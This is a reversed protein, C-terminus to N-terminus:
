AEILNALEVMSIDKACKKWAEFIAPKIFGSNKPDLTKRRADPGRVWMLLGSDAYAHLRCYPRLLQLQICADTSPFMGSRDAKVAVRYIVDTPDYPGSEKFNFLSRGYVSLYLEIKM